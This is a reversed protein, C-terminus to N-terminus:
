SQDNYSDDVDQGILLLSFNQHSIRMLLDVRESTSHVGHLKHRGRVRKVECLNTAVLELACNAAFAIEPGFRFSQM